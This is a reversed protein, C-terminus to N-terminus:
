SRSARLRRNEAELEAVRKQLKANMVMAEDLTMKKVHRSKQAYQRNKLRRRLSKLKEKEGPTKLSQLVKMYENKDLAMIRAEEASLDGDADISDHIVNVSSSDHSEPSTPSTAEVCISVDPLINTFDLSEPSSIVVDSSPTTIFIGSDPSTPLSTTQFVSDFLDFTDVFPLAGESPFQFAAQDLMDLSVLDPLLGPYENFSAM